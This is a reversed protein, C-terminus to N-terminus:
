YVINNYLNVITNLVQIHCCVMVCFTVLFVAQNASTGYMSFQEMIEISTELIVAENICTRVNSYLM